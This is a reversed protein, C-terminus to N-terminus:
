RAGAQAFVGARLHVQEALLKTLRALRTEDFRLGRGSEGM